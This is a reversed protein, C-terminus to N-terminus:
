AYFQNAFEIALQYDLRGHSRSRNARAKASWERRVVIQQQRDEVARGDDVPNRRIIQRIDAARPGPQDIRATEARLRLKRVQVSRPRSQLSM